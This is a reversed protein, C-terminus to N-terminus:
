NAELKQFHNKNKTYEVKKEEICTTVIKHDSIYNSVTPSEVVLDDAERTVIVDLIPGAIHTAEAVHQIFGKSLLLEEM